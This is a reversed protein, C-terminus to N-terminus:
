SQFVRHQSQYHSFVKAQSALLLKYPLPMWAPNYYKPGASTTIMEHWIEQKEKLICILDAAKTSETPPLVFVQLEPALSQYAFSLYNAVNIINCRIGHRM